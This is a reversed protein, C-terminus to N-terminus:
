NHYNYTYQCYQAPDWRTNGREAGGAGIKMLMKSNFTLSPVLENDVQNLVTGALQLGSGGMGGVWITDFVDMFLPKRMLLVMSGRGSWPKGFNPYKMFLAFFTENGPWNPAGFTGMGTDFACVM